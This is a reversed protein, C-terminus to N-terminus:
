FGQWVCQIKHKAGWPWDFQDVGVLYPQDLLENWKYTFTQQERKKYVGSKFEDIQSFRGDIYSRNFNSDLASLLKNTNLFASSTSKISSASILAFPLLSGLAPVLIYKYKRGKM